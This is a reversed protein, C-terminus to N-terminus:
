SIKSGNQASESPTVFNLAGDENEAMLIMGKSEVGRIKRPALNSLLTVKTGIIEDPAFHQAIGSVVTRKEYGLDVTLQLLKDAKKVKEAEIITAARLDLKVFDDFAITEKVDVNQPAAIPATNATKSANLKDIQAQIVDDDIRSFLHEPQSVKHGSAIPLEEGEALLNSLNLLEGGKTLKETNLLDCLKDSTFPMFPKICISIVKVYQAMLNMVVKVQEPDEKITKWPENFQLIQNGNSSIQRKYM